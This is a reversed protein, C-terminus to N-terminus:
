SPGATGAASSFSPESTRTVQWVASGSLLVSGNDSLRWERTVNFNGGEVVVDAQDKGKDKGKGGDMITVPVVQSQVSVTVNIDKGKGKGMDGSRAEWEAVAGRRVANDDKGKGEKGKFPKGGKGKGEKGKFPKGEKGKGEKGVNGKGVDDPEWFEWGDPVERAFVFGGAHRLLWVEGSPWLPPEPEDDDDHDADAPAVPATDTNRPLRRAHRTADQPHDRIGRM